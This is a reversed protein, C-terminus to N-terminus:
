YFKDLLQQFGSWFLVVGAFFIYIRLDSELTNTFLSFLMVKVGAIFEVSSFFMKSIEDLKTQKIKKLDRKKALYLVCILLSFLCIIVPNNFFDLASM